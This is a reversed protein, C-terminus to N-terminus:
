EHKLGKRSVYNVTSQAAVFIMPLLMVPFIRWVYYEISNKNWNNEIFERTEDFATACDKIIQTIWGKIFEM